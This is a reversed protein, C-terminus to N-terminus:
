LRLTYSSSIASLPFTGFCSKWQILIDPIYSFFLSPHVSQNKPPVGFFVLIATTRVAVFEDASIGTLTDSMITIISLDFFEPSIRFSSCFFPFPFLFLFAEPPLPNVEGTIGELIGKQNSFLRNLLPSLYRM